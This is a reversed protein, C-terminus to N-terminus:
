DGSICGMEAQTFIGTPDDTNGTSHCTEVAQTGCETGTVCYEPGARSVDPAPCITGGKLKDTENITTVFSQIILKSLKLSTKKM